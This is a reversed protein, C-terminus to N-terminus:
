EGPVQPVFEEKQRTLTNFIQMTSYEKKHSLGFGHDYVQRKYVDLHTYSVANSSIVLATRYSRTQRLRLLLTQPVARGLLFSDWLPLFKRSNFIQPWPVIRARVTLIM